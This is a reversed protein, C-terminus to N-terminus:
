YRVRENNNKYYTKYYALDQAMGKFEEDRYKKLEQLAKNVKAKIEDSSNNYLATFMLDKFMLNMYRCDMFSVKTESIFKEAYEKPMTM